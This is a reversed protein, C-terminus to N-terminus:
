LSEKVGFSNDTDGNRPPVPPPVTKVIVPVFKGYLLNITFIIWVWFLNRKNLDSIPLTFTVTAPDSHIKDEISAVLITQEM